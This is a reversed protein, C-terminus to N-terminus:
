RRAPSNLVDHVKAALTNTDFPKQLFDVLGLSEIGSSELGDSAYGSMYLVRLDPCLVLVKKALDFGTFGPMVVDTLLLHIPGHHNQCLRLADAGNAAELVQYGKRQLMSAFALRLKEEDEVLLITQNGTTNPPKSPGTRNEQTLQEALPLYIKFVSGRGPESYVWITGQSQKIIGYTTTLGLGTGKGIPKTTFFPEFIKSLTETDMGLGEDAVSLLVYHGRSVSLHTSTFQEDLYVNSTELTIVGGNPMADKANVVLNMIVQEMQSADVSVNRLDPALKTVIRVNEGILRTLMKELSQILPNLCITQPQVIQKRSFVLLQRTLAAARTTVEVVNQVHDRVAEPQESDEALLDCYMSIAGLMNNFDHAIGGALRGVADMKQLQQVQAESRRLETLREQIKKELDENKEELERNLQQIMEEAQVQETIDRGVTYFLPGIPTTNWSFWKYTGDKCLYRNVSAVRTTGVALAAIGQKTKAVDGPHLFEIIPKSYLEDETYGLVREFAPSVRKFYGDAGVIALLDFSYAFFLDREQEVTKLEDERHIRETVDEVRRLICEVEGRASLLPVNISSWYRIDFGGGESPPRPLSYKSAAMKDPARTQLVRELSARIAGVGTSGPDKPNDPFVDFFSKGLINERNMKAIKLYGDNVALISFDNKLVIFLGPVAEFLRRFNPELHTMSCIYGRPNEYGIIKILSPSDKTM